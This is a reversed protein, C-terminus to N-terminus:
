ARIMSVLLERYHELGPVNRGPVKAGDDRRRLVVAAHLGPLREVVDVEASSMPGGQLEFSRLSARSLRHRYDQDVTCLYRKARVHERVPETVEATFMQALWDAGASEHELDVNLFAERRDHESLLLHGVDHLLAAAVAADSDAARDALHASQLAHELQSVDEDYRTAGVREMWRFLADVWEEASAAPWSPPAASM